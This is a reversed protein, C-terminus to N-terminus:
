NLKFIACYGAEVTLSFLILPHDLIVLSENDLKLFEEEPINKLFFPCILFEAM